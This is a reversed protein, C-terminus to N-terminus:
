FELEENWHEHCFMVAYMTKNQHAEIYNSLDRQNGATLPRVDKGMEFGNNKAFIEM